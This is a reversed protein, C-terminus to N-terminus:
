PCIGPLLTDLITLLYVLTEEASIKQILNMLSLANDMGHNKMSEHMEDVSLNEFSTIFAYDEESIIKGHLYAEWSVTKGKEQHIQSELFRTNDKLLSEM